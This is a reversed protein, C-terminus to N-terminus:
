DNNLNDWKLNIVRLVRKIEEASLKIFISDINNIIVLEHPRLDEKNNKMTKLKLTQAYSWKFLQASEKKYAKNLRKFLSIKLRVVGKYVKIIVKSNLCIRKIKYPNENRIITIKRM